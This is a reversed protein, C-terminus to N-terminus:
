LPGVFKKPSLIMAEAKGAHVTLQNTTCWDLLERASTNLSDIVEEINDGMRRVNESSVEPSVDSLELFNSAYTSFSLHVNGLSSM